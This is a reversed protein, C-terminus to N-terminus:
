RDRDDADDIGVPSGTVTVIVLTVWSSSRLESPSPLVQGSAVPIPPV